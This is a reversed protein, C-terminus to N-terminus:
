KNSKKVEYMGAWFGLTAIGLKTMLTVVKTLNPNELKSFFFIFLILGILVANIFTSKGAKWNM